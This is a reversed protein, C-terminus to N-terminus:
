ISEDDKLIKKMKYSRHLNKNSCSGLTTEILDSIKTDLDKSLYEEIKDGWKKVLDNDEFIFNIDNDDDEVEICNNRNDITILLRDGYHGYGISNSNKDEEKDVIFSIYYHRYGYKMKKWITIRNDEHNEMLFAIFKDIENM